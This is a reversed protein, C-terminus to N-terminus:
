VHYTSLNSYDRRSRFGVTEVYKYSMNTALADRHHRAEEKTRFIYSSIECKSTGKTHIINAYYKRGLIFAIVENLVTTTM